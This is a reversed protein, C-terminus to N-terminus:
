QPAKSVDLPEIVGLPTAQGKEKAV